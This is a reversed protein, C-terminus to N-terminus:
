RSPIPHSTGSLHTDIGFDFARAPYSWASLGCRNEKISGWVWQSVVIGKLPFELQNPVMFACFDCLLLYGSEM